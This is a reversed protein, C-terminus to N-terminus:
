CMCNGPLFLSILYFRFHFIVIACIGDGLSPCVPLAPDKIVLSCESCTPEGGSMRDKLVDNTGGIVASVFCFQFLIVESEHHAMGM